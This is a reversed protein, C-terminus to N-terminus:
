EGTEGGTLENFARRKEAEGEIEQKRAAIRDAVLRDLGDNWREFDEAALRLWKEISGRIEKQRALTNAKIKEGINETYHTIVDFRVALEGDKVDGEPRGSLYYGSPIHQFVRADGTFPITLIFEKGPILTDPRCDRSFHEAGAPVSKDEGTRLYNDGLVPIDVRFKEVYSSERDFGGPIRVARLERVFREELGKIVNFSGFLKKPDPPLPM